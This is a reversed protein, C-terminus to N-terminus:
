VAGEKRARVFFEDIWRQYDNKAIYQVASCLNRKLLRFFKSSSTRTPILKM